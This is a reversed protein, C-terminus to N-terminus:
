RNVQYHVMKQNESVLREVDAESRV